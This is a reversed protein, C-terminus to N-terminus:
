ILIYKTVHLIGRDQLEIYVCTTRFRLRMVIFIILTIFFIISLKIV